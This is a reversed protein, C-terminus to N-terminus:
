PCDIWGCRTDRGLISRNFGQGGHEAQSACNGVEAAQGEGCSVASCGGKGRGGDVKLPQGLPRGVSSSGGACVRNAIRGQRRPWWCGDFQQGDHSQEIGLRGFAGHRPARCHKAQGHLLGRQNRHTSAMRTMASIGIHSKSVGRAVTSREFSRGSEQVRLARHEVRRWVGGFGVRM